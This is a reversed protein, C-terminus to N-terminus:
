ARSRPLHHVIPRAAWVRAPGTFPGLLVLKIFVSLVIFLLPSSTAFPRCFWRVLLVQGRGPSCGFARLVRSLWQLFRGFRLCFLLLFVDSRRGSPRGLRVVILVQPLDFVVGGVAVCRLCKLCDSCGLSFSAWLPGVGAGSSAILYCGGPVCRVCSLLGCGRVFRPIVCLYHWIHGIAAHQQM